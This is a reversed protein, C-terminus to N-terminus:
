KRHFMMIVGKRARKVDSYIDLEAQIKRNKGRNKYGM